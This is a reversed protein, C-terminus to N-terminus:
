ESRLFVQHFRGQDGQGQEAGQGGQGGAQMGGGEGRLLLGTDLLQDALRQHGVRLDEILRGVGPLLLVRRILGGLKAVDYFAVLLRQEHAGGARAQPGLMGLQGQDGEGIVVARVAFLEIRVQGTQELLMRIETQHDLQQGELPLRGGFRGLVAQGQPLLIRSAEEWEM